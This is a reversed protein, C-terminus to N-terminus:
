SFMIESSKRPFSDCNQLPHYFYLLGGPISVVDSGMNYSRFMTDLVTLLSVPAYSTFITLLIDSLLRCTILLFCIYHHSIERDGADFWARM